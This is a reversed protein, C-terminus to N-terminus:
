AAGGPMRGTRAAEVAGAIRKSRTPDTKATKIWYHLRKRESANLKKWGATAGAGKIAAVLDPPSRLAEIDDLFEWMGNERAVAVAREGAPTMRGEARLKEIRAKNPLSWISDPRRPSIMRAIRDDDIRRMRSDIWGFALLEDVTDGISLYHPTHKKWTVLWVTEKQDHHATLWDRLEARSKVEIRTLDDTPTTMCVNQWVRRHVDGRM